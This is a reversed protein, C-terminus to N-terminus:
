RLIAPIKRKLSSYKLLVKVIFSIEFHNAKAKTKIDILNNLTKKELCCASVNNSKIVFTRRQKSNKKLFTINM